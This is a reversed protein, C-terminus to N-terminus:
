KVGLKKWYLPCQQAVIYLFLKYEFAVLLVTALVDSLYHQTLLVRTALIVVGISLFIWRKKPYLLSLSLVAAAVQTTHGSPFSHYLHNMSFGFFGFIHDSFLLEPRARGFLTKLGFCLGNTVVLSAWLFWIRWEAQKVRRGHRFFLALLPLLVLWYISKGIHTIWNVVPFHKAVGLDHMTWAIPQDLWLYSGVILALFVPLLVPHTLSQIWREVIRM